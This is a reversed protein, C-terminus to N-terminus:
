MVVFLIDFTVASSVGGSARHNIGNRQHPAAKEKWRASIEGCLIPFTRRVSLALIRNRWIFDITRARKPEACM